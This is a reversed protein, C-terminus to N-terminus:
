TERVLHDAWQLVREVLDVASARDLGEWEVPEDYRLERGM